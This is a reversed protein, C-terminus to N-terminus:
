RGVMEGMLLGVLGGWWWLRCVGRPLPGCLSREHLPLEGVAHLLLPGVGGAPGPAVHSACVRGVCVRGGRGVWDRRRRHRFLVYSRNGRHCFFCTGPM